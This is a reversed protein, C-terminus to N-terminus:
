SGSGGTAMRELEALIQAHMGHLNVRRAYALAHARLPERDADLLRRLAKDLAPQAFPETLVEGAEAAAVHGAYGCAASCLVPLGAVLAEVLVTGTNEVRAPHLLLDAAQLLAPVDDRGSEIHVRDAIGLRQALRRWPGAADAGVALLRTRSLLPAPLSALAALARDLGKRAFDSGLLLLLHESDALGLDRRTAARIAAADEGPRRDPAVGPPLLTFRADATGYCRQFVAQQRGDVLLIRTHSAPALVMAELALLARARPMWRHIPHRAQLRARYCPDAAFWADLHPLRDFGLTLDVPDAALAEGLAMGFRRARGHNTWGGADLIRVDLGEPRPGEWVRTHIRVQHGAAQCARATLLADRQAGGHPFYRLLALALRM